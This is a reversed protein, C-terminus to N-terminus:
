PLRARIESMSVSGMSPREGSAASTQPGSLALKAKFYRGVETARAVRTMLWTNSLM